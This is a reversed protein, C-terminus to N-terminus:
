KTFTLTLTICPAKGALAAAFAVASDDKYRKVPVRHIKALDRLERQSLNMLLTCLQGDNPRHNEIKITHRKM